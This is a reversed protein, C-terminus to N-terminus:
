IKGIFVNNKTPYGAMNVNFAIFLCVGLPHVQECEALITMERRQSHSLFVVIWGSVLLGVDWLM